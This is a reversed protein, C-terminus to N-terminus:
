FALNSSDFKKIARNNKGLVVTNLRDSVLIDEAVRMVDEETVSEIKKLRDELSETSGNLM